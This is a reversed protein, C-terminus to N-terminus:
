CTGSSKTGEVIDMSPNVAETFQPSPGKKLFPLATQIEVSTQNAVPPFDRLALNVCFYARHWGSM